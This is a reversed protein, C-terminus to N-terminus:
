KRKGFLEKWTFATPAVRPSMVNGRTLAVHLELKDPYFYVSHAAVPQEAAMLLKRAEMLGIPTGQRALMELGEMISTYRACAIPPCRVRDHNTLVLVGSQTERRMSVNRDAADFELVASPTGSLKEAAARPWTLQFLNGCAAPYAAAMQAGAEAPDSDAPDISELMRRLLLSRAICDGERGGHKCNFGDHVCIVLGASNMGSYVGILGPWGVAAWAQRKSRDKSRSRMAESVVIIQDAVAKPGLPFDLTRAHLVEGDPTRKGWAAFGSCAPGFYDALVNIAVIDDRTLPRNLAASRLGDAGLRAQMGDFVGDLEATADADWVFNRQAWPALNREFKQPGFNPLSQLAADCDDRIERALLYGHAFGRERPDDGSLRLVRHNKVTLLAGAKAAREAPSQAWASCALFHLVFALLLLRRLTM